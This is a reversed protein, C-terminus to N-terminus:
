DCDDWYRRSRKKVDVTPEKAEHGTGRLGASSPIRAVKGDRRPPTQTCLEGCVGRREGWREIAEFTSGCECQYEYIPM